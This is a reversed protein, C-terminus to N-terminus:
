NKINFRKAWGFLQMLMWLHHSAQFVTQQANDKKTHMGRQYIAELQKKDIFGPWPNEDFLLRQALKKFADNQYKYLPMNFGTKPHDFVESPLMKQMLKRLIYKGKGHKILLDDSLKSSVAFLDVDLFPARVELSNAMSMRDVKILMNAPLTHILRYYMIKRLPSWSEFEEPYNNYLPYAAHNKLNSNKLLTDVQNTSFMENLAIPIQSNSLLSTQVGRKVKRLMASGNLFPINQSLGLGTNLTQRIPSPVNKLGVIKQYWQFLDYGGFLEDGGDGSLAVKVHKSIEQCILFSPIASSDRFPLGVHDIINWFISEDFDLNPIFVEHHDTGCHDAVKRAITSEDFGQQEFRVNFTKIAKHSSQQLLAVISSSDIGGSLFAGIPVDSVTQRKVANLLFPQITEIAENENSIVPNKPYAPDFYIKEELLKEDVMMFHGARLIRVNQILTIPEPVLSTRFYYPLAEHNLRRDISTAQLLSNIESSFIFTGKQWHYYLPKEGFPDRALFCTKNELNYICFSFMGKLMDLMGSGYIEYLYLLVETDSGTQFTYGKAMLVKKLTKFNYIEGNFVICLNKQQNFIPQNGGKQDIIALRSMAVTAIEGSYSGADDPGRHDLAQNMANVQRKRDSDSLTNKWDIIGCIGCM